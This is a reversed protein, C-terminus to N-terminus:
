WRCARPHYYCYRHQEWGPYRPWPSAERWAPARNCVTRWGNWWCRAEAPTAFLGATLMVVALGALMTKM